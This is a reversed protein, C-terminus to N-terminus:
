PVPKPAAPPEKQRGDGGNQGRAAAIKALLGQYQAVVEPGSLRPDLVLTARLLQEAQRLKGAEKTTAFQDYLLWAVRYVAHYYEPPKAKLRGLWVRIDTWEAIAADFKTYDKRAWDDLIAAKAMRPELARPYRAVLQEAEQAAEQFRGQERLLRALQLGARAVAKEHSRTFEADQRAKDLARQYQEVAREALGMATCTEALYLLDGPSHEQRRSLRELMGALAAQLSDRKAALEEVDPANGALGRTVAADMRAWERRLLQVFGVLPANVAATDPSHEVLLLAIAASHEMQNLAAHARVAGLFGRLTSADLAAPKEARFRAVLPDLVALAQQYQQGELLVEALLLEADNRPSPAVPSGAGPPTRPGGDTGTNSGERQMAEVAAALANQADLRAGAMREESRGSEPKGKEELYARWHLQGILYQATGFRPSAPGIRSLAAMAQGADKGALCAQALAMHAEDAVPTEAWKQAVFDAIRQLRELAPRKDQAAEHLALASALALAAARSAQPDGADEKAVLGAVHIAQEYQGGAHLEWAHAYRARNQRSRIEKRRAENKTERAGQDALGYYTEAQSFDGMALAADGLALYDEVGLNPNGMAKWVQARVLVAEHRFESNGQAVSGLVEAAQRLIRAKLNPLARGAAAFLAKGMELEIGPSAPLSRWDRHSQLWKGAELALHEPRQQQAMARFKFLAALTSLYALDDDASGADPTNALVDEYHDIAATSDGLDELARGHWLHSLLSIEVADRRSSQDIADLQQAAERLARERQPDRPDDFTQALHYAVLAEKFRAELAGHRLAEQRPTAPSEAPKGGTAPQAMRAAFARGASQFSAGAEELLSKAERLLRAHRRADQARRAASLLQAARELPIDGRWILAWGARMHDPHQELFRGLYKLGERLHREFDDADAAAQALARHSLFREVDLAERVDAPLDSRNALAGIVRLSEEAKGQRRLDFLEALPSTDPEASAGAACSALVLVAAYALFNSRPNM